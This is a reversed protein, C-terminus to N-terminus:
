EVCIVSKKKWSFFIILLLHFKFFFFCFVSKLSFGTALIIEWTYIHGIHLSTITRLYQKQKKTKQKKKKQEKKTKNGPLKTCKSIGLLYKLIIEKIFRVM